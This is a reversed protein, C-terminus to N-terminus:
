ERGTYLQFTEKTGQGKPPKKEAQYECWLIWVVFLMICIFFIAPATTHHSMTTLNM